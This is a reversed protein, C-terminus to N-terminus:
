ESVNLVSGIVEASASKLESIAKKMDSLNTADKEAVILVGQAKAAILQADAFNALSPTDIIIVDFYEKLEELLLNFKTRAVLEQPNPAETGATLVSLGQLKEIVVIDNLSAREALIDSLGKRNEIKFYEHIKPSRLNADILITREGLQSFSVALNAAVNSSSGTQESSSISFSKNGKSLWRQTIQGRLSRLAEGMESYPFYAAVLKESFSKDEKAIFSYAFQRSLAFQIDTEKILGMIIATEGFRTGDKKQRLLIQEAQVDTIRGSEILVKGISGSQLPFQTDFEKVM